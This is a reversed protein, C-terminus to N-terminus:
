RQQLLDEALLPAADQGVQDSEEAVEIEGLFGGLLRERDGGLAPRAGALRGVGTRPQRGRRAVPCDVPDAAVAGEGRLGAQELRGVRHLLLHLLLRERVLPELQDERAAM